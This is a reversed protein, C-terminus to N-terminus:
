SAESGPKNADRLLRIIDCSIKQPIVSDQKYDPHKAVFDRIYRAATPITGKAKELLFTM